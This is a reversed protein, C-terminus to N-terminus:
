CDVQGTWMMLYKYFEVFTFKMQFPSENWDLRRYGRTIKLIGLIPQLIVYVYM